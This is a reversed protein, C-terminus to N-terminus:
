KNEERQKQRTEPIRVRVTTGKGPASTVTFEGGLILAREQMGLIGLSRQRSLQKDDFGQGNDHVELTVDGGEKAARELQERTASVARNDRSQRWQNISAIRERAIADYDVSDDPHAARPALGIEGPFANVGIQTVEGSELKRQRESLQRTLESSVIGISKMYGAERMSIAIDRAKAMTAGTLKEIIKSGEFIDLYDTIGTEHMLVQQTRLGILQEAQDPLSMAERFGPLQLANVRADANLEEIVSLLSGTTADASPMRVTRSDCGLEGAVRQKNKIYQRSAPDDGVLIAALSPTSGFETKLQDVHARLEPMLHASLARGDMIIAAM